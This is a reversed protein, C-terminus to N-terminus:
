CQKWWLHFCSKKDGVAEDVTILQSTGNGAWSDFVGTNAGSETMMVDRLGDVTALASGTSNNLRCNDTCGMDGLEPLSLFNNADANTDTENGAYAM